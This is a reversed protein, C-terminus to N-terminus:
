KGMSVVGIAASRTWPSRSVVKETMELTLDLKKGKFRKKKVQTDLGKEVSAM